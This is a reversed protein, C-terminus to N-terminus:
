GDNGRVLFTLAAGLLATNKLFNIMEQQQQDGELNWFDHMQPTVGAFFTVVAGASAVPRRGLAIGLGGLALMGHSFPVLFEAMPVDKSEAYEVQGEMGRFGNLGMFALIGGFLARGLVSLARGITSATTM